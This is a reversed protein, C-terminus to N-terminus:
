IVVLGLYLLSAGAFPRPSGLLFISSADAFVPTVNVGGSRDLSLAFTVDIENSVPVGAIDDPIFRSVLRLPHMGALAFRQSGGLMESDSGATPEM